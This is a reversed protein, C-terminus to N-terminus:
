RTIKVAVKEATILCLLSRKSDTSLDFIVALTDSTTSPKINNTVLDNFLIAKM